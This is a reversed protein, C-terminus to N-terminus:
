QLERRAVVMCRSCNETKFFYFCHLTVLVNLFHMMAHGFVQRFVLRRMTHRVMQFHYLLHQKDGNPSVYDRHM